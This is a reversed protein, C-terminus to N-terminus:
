DVCGEHADTHFISFSALMRWEWLKQIVQHIGNTEVFLLCGLVRFLAWRQVGCSSQSTMDWLLHQLTSAVTHCPRPALLGVFGVFLGVFMSYISSILKAGSQPM